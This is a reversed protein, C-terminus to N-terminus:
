PRVWRGPAMRWGGGVRVWRHPAWAWGVRPPAWYGRVWIHRAGVWNWYGGIWVYGAAPAAVPAEVIVPPPEVMVVPGDYVPEQVVVPVRRSPYPVVVCGSLALASLSLTTLALLSARRSPNPLHPM